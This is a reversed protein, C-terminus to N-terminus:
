LKLAPMKPSVRLEANRQIEADQSASIGLAKRCAPPNAALAVLEDVLAARVPNLSPTALKDLRLPVHDGGERKTESPPLLVIVDCVTAFPGGSVACRTM